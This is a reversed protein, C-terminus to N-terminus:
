DALMELYAEQIIGGIEASTANTEEYHHGHCCAEDFWPTGEDLKFNFKPLIYGLQDQTLGLVFTNPKDMMDRLYPGNPAQALDSRSDGTNEESWIKEIGGPTRSGDYGGVALEPHLEGPITIMEVSGVELNVLQSKAYVLTGVSPSPHVTGDAQYVERDLVGLTFLLQFGFNEIPFMVERTQFAIEPESEPAAGELAQETFDSLVDGLADIKAYATEKSCDGCRPHDVGKWSFAVHNSGIQGGLAGNAFVAIQGPHRAKQHKRLAGPYDGTIEYGWIRQEPHSHWNIYTAIIADDEAKRFRLASLTDDIIVPDRGDYQYTDLGTQVTGAEMVAPQLEEVAETLAEVTRERIRAMYWPLVGTTGPDPGYLGMTDPTEHNHSSSLVLLDIGLEEYGPEEEIRQIDNYFFGFADLGVLAVRQGDRDFVVVSVYLDDEVEQAPRANSNALWIADFYSNGNADDFPENPGGGAPNTIQGDWTQSDNLDTYTETIEPTIIREAAGARLVGDGSSDDDDDDNTVDDDDATTTMDDDDSADDDDSCGSALASFSMLLLLWTKWQNM